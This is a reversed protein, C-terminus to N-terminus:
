KFCVSNFCGKIGKLYVKTHYSHVETHDIIYKKGVVLEDYNGTYSGWNRQAESAGTFKVKTGEKAYINM